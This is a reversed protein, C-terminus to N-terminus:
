FQAVVLVQKSLHRACTYTVVQALLLPTPLIAASGSSNENAQLDSAVPLKM